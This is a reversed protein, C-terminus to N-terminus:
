FSGTRPRMRRLSGPAPWGRWTMKSERSGGQKIMLTETPTTRGYEGLLAQVTELFVTKGNAGLGYCFFLVQEGTTGTM